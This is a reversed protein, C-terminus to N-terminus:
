FHGSFISFTWFPPLPWRQFDLPGCNLIYVIKLHPPPTRIKLNNEFEFSQFIDRITRWIPTINTLYLCCKTCVHSIYSLFLGSTDTQYLKDDDFMMKGWIWITKIRRPFTLFTIYKKWMKPVNKWKTQKWLFMWTHYLCTKGFEQRSIAGGTKTWWVLGGRVFGTGWGRKCWFRVFYLM